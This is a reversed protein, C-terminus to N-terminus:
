SMSRKAIVEAVTLGKSEIFKKGVKGDVYVARGDKMCKMRHDTPHDNYPIILTKDASFSALWSAPGKCGYYITVTRITLMSDADLRERIEAPSLPAAPAPPLTPGPLWYPQPVTINSKEESGYINQLLNCLRLYAGEKMDEKHSELEEMISVIHDRVNKPTSMDQNKWPFILKEYVM